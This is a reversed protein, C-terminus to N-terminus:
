RKNTDLVVGIKDGLTKYNFDIAIVLERQTKNLHNILQEKEFPLFIDNTEHFLFQGEDNKDLKNLIEETNPNNLSIDLNCVDLFLKSHDLAFLLNQGGKFKIKHQIGMEFNNFENEKNFNFFFDRYGILTDVQFGLNEILNLFIDLMTNDDRKVSDILLSERIVDILKTVFSIIAYTDIETYENLLDLRINERYIVVDKSSKYDSMNKEFPSMIYSLGAKVKETIHQRFNNEDEITTPIQNGKEIIQNRYIDNLASQLIEIKEELMNEDGHLGHNYYFNQCFKRYSEKTKIKNNGLYSNYYSFSNNNIIKELESTIKDKDWNKSLIYFVIFEKCVSSYMMWKAEGNDPFYEWSFSSTDIDTILQLFDFDTSDIEELYASIITRNNHILTSINEKIEIFNADSINEKEIIYYFYIM